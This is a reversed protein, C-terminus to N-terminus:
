RFNSSFHFRNEVLFNYLYRNSNILIQARRWAALILRGSDYHNHNILLLCDGASGSPHAESLLSSLFVAIMPPELGEPREM